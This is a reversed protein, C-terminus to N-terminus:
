TLGLMKKNIRDIVAVQKVSFRTDEGHENWRAVQDNMFNREWDSLRDRAQQSQEFLEITERIEDAAM